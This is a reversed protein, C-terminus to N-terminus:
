LRIFVVRGLLLCRGNAITVELNWPYSPRCVYLVGNSYSSVRMRCTLIRRYVVYAISQANATAQAPQATRYGSGHGRLHTKRLGGGGALWGARLRSHVCCFLVSCSPSNRHAQRRRRLRMKCLEPPRLAAGAVGKVASLFGACPPQSVGGRRLAPPSSGPPHVWRLERSVSARLTEARSNTVDYRITDHRSHQTHTYIYIYVHHYTHGEQTHHSM